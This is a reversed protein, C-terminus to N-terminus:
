KDKTRRRELVDVLSEEGEDKWCMLRVKKEKSSRIFTESRRRGGDKMRLGELVDVM